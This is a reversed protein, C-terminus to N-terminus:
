GIGLNKKGWENMAEQRQQCGCDGGVLSSVRDKTIGIAGLGAAVMDGLGPRARPYAPHSTDLEVWGDGYDDTICASVSEEAYGRESAVSLLTTRRMKVAPVGADRNAIVHWLM